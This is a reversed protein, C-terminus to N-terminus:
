TSYNSDLDNLATNQDLKFLCMTLSNLVLKLIFKNKYSELNTYAGACEIGHLLQHKNWPPFKCFKKPM